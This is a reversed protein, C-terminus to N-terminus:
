QCISPNPAIDKMCAGPERRYPILYSDCFGVNSPLREPSIRLQRCPSQPLAARTSATPWLARRSSKSPPRSLGVREPQGGAKGSEKRAHAWSFASCKLEIELELDLELDIEVKLQVEDRVDVTFKM